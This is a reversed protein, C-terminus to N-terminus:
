NLYVTNGEISPHHPIDQPKYKRLDLIPSVKPKPIAIPLQEPKTEILPTFFNSYHITKVELRAAIPMPEKIRNEKIPVDRVGLKPMEKLAQTQSEKTDKDEADHLIFPTLEETIGSTTNRPAEKRKLPQAIRLEQYKLPSFKGEHPIPTPEHHIDHILEKEEEEKAIPKYWADINQKIPLFVDQNIKQSLEEAITESLNLPPKTLEHKFDNASLFGLIVDGTITALIKIHKEDLSKEEGLRWVLDTNKENFLAEKLILPLSDWRENFQQENITLM